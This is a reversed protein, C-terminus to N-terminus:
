APIINKDLKTKAIILIDNFLNLYKRVEIEESTFLANKGGEINKVESARRLMFDDYIVFDIKYKEQIEDEDSFLVYTEIQLEKHKQFTPKLIELEAKKIIFIRIAKEKKRDIHKNHAELYLTGNNSNWWKEDQYSIAKLSKNCCELITKTVTLEVEHNCSYVGQSIQYLQKNYEEYVESLFFKYFQNENSNAEFSYNITDRIKPNKSLLKIFKSIADQNDEIHQLYTNLRHLFTILLSILLALAADRTTETKTHDLFIGYTLIALGIIVSLIVNWNKSLYKEM